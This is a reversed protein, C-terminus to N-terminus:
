TGEAARSRVSSRASSLPPCGFSSAADTLVALLWVALVIAPHAVATRTPAQARLPHAPARHALRGGRAGRCRVPAVWRRSPWASRSSSSGNPAPASASTPRSGIAEARGARLQRPVLRRDGRVRPLRGVRETACSCWASRPRAHVGRGHPRHDLRPVSRVADGQREGPLRATSSTSSRERDRLARRRASSSAPRSTSSTSSCRRRGPLPDVGALTLRGAHAPGSLGAISRPSARAADHLQPATPEGARTGMLRPSGAGIAAAFRSGACGAQALRRDGPSSRSERRRRHRALLPQRDGDGLVLGMPGSRGSIAAWRSKVLSAMAFGVILADASHLSPMAAYPNSALEILGSGHNVASSHALTDM